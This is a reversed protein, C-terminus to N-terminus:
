EKIIKFRGASEGNVTVHMIYCSSPVETVDFTASSGSHIYEKILMGQLSYLQVSLVSASPVAVRLIGNVPNNYEVSLSLGDISVVDYLIRNSTGDADVPILRYYITKTENTFADEISYKRNTGFASGAKVTIVDQWLDMDYSRQIIYKDLNIETAVTWSITVIHPATVAAKFRLVTVPLPVLTGICNEDAGSSQGFGWIGNNIQYGTYACTNSFGSASGYGWISNNIAAGVFACTVAAGSSNGFGWIPNNMAYGVSQCTNSHGSGNGSGWIANNIPYGIYGCGVSSGSANGSGFIPNNQACLTLGAFSLLLIIFVKM